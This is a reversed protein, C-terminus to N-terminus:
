PEAGTQRRRSCRARLATAALLALAVALGVTAARLSVTLASPGVAISWATTVDIITM